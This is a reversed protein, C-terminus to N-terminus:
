LYDLLSLSMANQLVKYSAALNDSALLAKVAAEDRDVDKLSSISNEFNTKVLTLNDNTNKLVLTNADIKAQCTALDVNKSGSNNGNNFEASQIMELADTVRKLASDIDVPPQVGDAPNRTDVLNGQAIEGLARFLKEFAPDNANVDFTLSQNESIHKETSLDGGQYYSECSMSWDGNGPIVVPNANFRSPDLTVELTGDARVGTVQVTKAVNNGMGEMTIVSGVPFSTSFTTGDTAPVTETTNVPTTDEFTITKGDESVSKIVYSGNNAGANDLVLTDGAKLTNFAGYETAQVTNNDANFSLNGTTHANSVIAEKLFGGATASSITATNGGTLDITINGTDKGDVKRNTLNSSSTEPYKINIGDYYKQFEDLNSFPFNVPSKTSVGGGFVYKGNVFTNLSDTLMKMTSFALSQLQQLESYQDDSMKHPEGTKVGDANLVSSVGDVTYLPFTFKGDEFKFDPNTTGVKAQLAAMVDKAYTDTGVNGAIDHLNIEDPGVVDGAATDKDVFTYTTGDLTLTTGVYVDNNSTFSIEGGTYDPTLKELDIGSFSNLASKFDTVSKTISQMATNITNVEVGLIKNNEIFNNTVGLSAEMNVISFASMGYGSYTPSKLGSMSQFSYLNVQAKSIQTQNLM